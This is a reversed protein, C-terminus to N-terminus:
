FNIYALDCVAFLYWCMLLYATVFVVVTLLKGSICILRVTRNINHERDTKEEM